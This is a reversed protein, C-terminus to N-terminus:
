EVTNTDGIETCVTGLNNFFCGITQRKTLNKM